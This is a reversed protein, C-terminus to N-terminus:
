GDIKDQAQQEQKRKHEALKQLATQRDDAPYLWFEYDRYAKDGINMQQAVNYADACRNMLALLQYDQDLM